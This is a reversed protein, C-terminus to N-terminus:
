LASSKFFESVHEPVTDPFQPVIEGDEMDFLMYPEEEYKTLVFLEITGDADYDDTCIARCNEITLLNTEGEAFYDSGDGAYWLRYTYLWGGSRDPDPYINRYEQWVCDIGFVSGLDICSGVIDMMGGIASRNENPVCSKLSGQYTFRNWDYDLVYESLNDAIIADYTEQDPCLLRIIHSGDEVYVYYEDEATQKMVITGSESVSVNSLFFLLAAASLLIALFIVAANIWITKRQTKIVNDSIDLLSRIAATDDTPEPQRQCTMLETVSLDLAEALEEMLTVDPYCLGREWKSVAKDTVHLRDALNQQTMGKEKRTQAVFAGFIEKNM